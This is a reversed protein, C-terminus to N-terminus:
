FNTCLPPIFSRSAHWPRAFSRTPTVRACFARLCRFHQASKFPWHGLHGVPEGETQNARPLPRAWRLLLLHQATFFQRMVAMPHDALHVGARDECGFSAAAHDSRRLRRGPCPRSIRPFGTKEGISVGGKADLGLTKEVTWLPRLGRVRSTLGCRAGAWRWSPLRFMWGLPKFEGRRRFRKGFLFSSRPKHGRLCKRWAYFRPDGRAAPRRPQGAAFAPRARHGPTRIGPFITGAQSCRLGPKWRATFGLPKALLTRYGAPPM